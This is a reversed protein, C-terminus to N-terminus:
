VKRLAGFLAVFYAVGVIGVLYPVLWNVIPLPSVMRVIAVQVVVWLALLGVIRWYHGAVLTSSLALAAPGPPSGIAVALPAFAYRVAVLVGPLLACGVVVVLLVDLFLFADAATAVTAGNSTVLWGGLLLGPIMVVLAIAAVLIETWLYPLFRQWGRRLAMRGGQIRPDALYALMGVASVKSLVLAVLLTVVTVIPLVLSGAASPVRWAVLYLLLVPPLPLLSLLVLGRLRVRSSDWATRVLSGFTPLAGM